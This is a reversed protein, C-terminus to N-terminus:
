STPAGVWGSSAWGRVQKSCQTMCRQATKLRAVFKTPWTAPCASAVLRSMWARLRLRGSDCSPWMRSARTVRGKSPRCRLRGPWRSCIYCRPLTFEVRMKSNVAKFIPWPGGAFYRVDDEDNRQLIGHSAILGNDLCMVAHKMTGVPFKEFNNVCISEFFKLVDPGKFNMQNDSLGAHIYCGQKWSLSEAKWGSFEWAWLRNMMVMYSSPEDYYPLGGLDPLQPMTM